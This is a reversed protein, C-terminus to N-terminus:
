PRERDVQLRHSNKGLQKHHAFSALSLGDRAVVQKGEAGVASEVDGVPDVPVVELSEVVDDGDHSPADLSDEVAVEEIEIDCFNQLSLFQL